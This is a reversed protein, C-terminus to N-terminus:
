RLGVTFDLGRKQERWLVADKETATSTNSGGAGAEGEQCMRGGHAM